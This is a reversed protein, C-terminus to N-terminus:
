RKRRVTAKVYRGVLIAAPYLVEEEQRAHHALTESLRVYEPRQARQASAEFRERAAGIRQHQELMRPLEAELADTMPLVARMQPTAAGKSLPALLSLPPTAIEEERRFHPDLLTALERATAGLEGPERTARELAAHIEQHEEHISAPTRLLVDRNDTPGKEAAQSATASAVPALVALALLHGLLNM